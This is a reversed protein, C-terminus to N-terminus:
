LASSHRFNLIIDIRDFELGGADKMAIEKTLAKARDM